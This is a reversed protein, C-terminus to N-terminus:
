EAINFPSFIHMMSNIFYLIKMEISGSGTDFKCQHIGGEWNIIVSKHVLGIILLTNEM